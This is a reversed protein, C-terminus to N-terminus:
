RRGELDERRQLFEEREIEGRAYREELIDLARRAGDRGVRGRGIGGGFVWRALGAVLLALVVWFLVMLVGGAPAFWGMGYGGYGGMPGWM